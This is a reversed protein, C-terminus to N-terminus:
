SAKTGIMQLVEVRWTPRTFGHLAVKRVLIM